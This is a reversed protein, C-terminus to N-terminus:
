GLKNLLNIVMFGKFNIHSDEDKDKNGDFILNALQPVYHGAYSEGSLYFDNSKLHPFKRFWNLLFDYSDKATVNDGLRGLDSSKNTYSYGVGVPAEVFLLNAVKNWAYPNHTLNPGDSRVLFPGLEHAAGYAVSSCGPGAHM